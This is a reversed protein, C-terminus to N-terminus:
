KKKKKKKVTETTSPHGHFIMCPSGHHPRGTGPKTLSAVVKPDNNMAIITPLGHM